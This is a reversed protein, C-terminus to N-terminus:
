TQLRGTRCDMKSWHSEIYYVFVHERCCAPTAALQTTVMRTGASGALAGHIRCSTSPWGAAQRGLSGGRAARLRPFDILRRRELPVAEHVQHGPLTGGYVRM